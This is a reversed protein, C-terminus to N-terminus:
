QKLTVKRIVVPTTPVDEHEGNTGTNTAAIKDVVDMGALVQGFVAYG